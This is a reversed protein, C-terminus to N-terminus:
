SLLEQVSMDAKFITGHVQSLMLLVANSSWQGKKEQVVFSKMIRLVAVM